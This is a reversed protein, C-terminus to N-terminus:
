QEERIGVVFATEMIYDFIDDLMEKLKEKEIHFQEELIQLTKEETLFLWFYRKEEDMKYSGAIHDSEPEDVAGVFLMREVVDLEYVLEVENGYKPDRQMATMDSRFTWIFPWGASEEQTVLIRWSGLFPNDAFVAACLLFFIVSLMFIKM